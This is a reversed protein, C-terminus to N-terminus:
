RLREELGSVSNYWGRELVFAQFEKDFGTIVLLGVMIIVAGIIKRLGGEPNAYWGLRSTVTRGFYAVALLTAGLGVAYATLYALGRGFTAPLVAAVILAYTPSCSNFVPGLSMGLLIDGGYGKKGTANGMWQQARSYLRGGAFVAEWLKPWLLNLGFLVLIVGSVTQWVGQPVGLLVTSAKLLLTFLIVSIVLSATIVLPRRMSRAEAANRSISGGVVVPLLPLICPAAITLVGALFSLLLLSM